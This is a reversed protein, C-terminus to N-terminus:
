SSSHRQELQHHWARLTPTDTRTRLRISGIPPHQPAPKLHHVDIPPGPSLAASEALLAIGLGAAVLERIGTPSSAQFPIQPEFGQEAAATSLITHLGSGPPLCVFQEDRYAGLSSIRKAVHHNPPTILVLNEPALRQTLFREPLEVHIPGIVMDFGGKELLHLLAAILGTQVSLRVEPYRRHFLALAAPLDFSGLVPTVGLRLQGRLVASLDDVDDRTADLEALVTRVHALVLEGAHTLAVRRTTRELLVTGLERELKRIQASVAPQAIRLSEAARTFSTHRAVAEFYVLQRLEMINM